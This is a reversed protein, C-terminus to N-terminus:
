AKRAVLGDRFHLREFVSKLRSPNSIMAKRKLTSLLVIQVRLKKYVVIDRDDHKNGGQDLTCLSPHNHRKLIRRRLTFSFCANSENKSLFKRKWVGEGYQPRPTNKRTMEAQNM